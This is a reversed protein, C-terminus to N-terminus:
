GVNGVGILGEDVGFGGVDVIEISFSSNHLSKFSPYPSCPDAVADSGASCTLTPHTHPYYPSPSSYSRLM